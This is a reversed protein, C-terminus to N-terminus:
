QNKNYRPRPAEDPKLVKRQYEPNRFHQIESKSFKMFHEYLEPVIKLREM